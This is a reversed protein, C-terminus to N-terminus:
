KGMHSKIKEYLERTKQPDPENFIIFGKDTQVYIYPSKGYKIFLKGNGLTQLTFYGKLVNNLAYGNTRMQIAPITEDLEIKKIEKYSITTGYVGSIQISSTGVTIETPKMGYLVFGAVLLFFAIISAIIIKVSTKLKGDPRKAGADYKQAKILVYIIGILILPIVFLSAQHYGLWDITYFLLFMAGMFYCFNGMFKGLGAEDIQKKREKSATNYGSILWYCKFQRILVGLVIFLGGLYLLIFMM